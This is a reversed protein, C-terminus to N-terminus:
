LETCQVVRDVVLHFSMSPDLCVNWVLVSAPHVHVYIQDVLVEQDPIRREHAIIRVVPVAVVQPVIIVREVAHEVREGIWRTPSRVERVAKGNQPVVFRRVPHGDVM